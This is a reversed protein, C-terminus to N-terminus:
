AVAPRAIPLADLVQDLVDFDVLTATGNKRFLQPTQARLEYLASKSIGSYAVAAPIRGFRPRLRQERSPVEITPV